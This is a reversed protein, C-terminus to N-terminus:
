YLKIVNEKAAKKINEKVLPIRKKYNEITDIRSDASIYESMLVASYGIGSGVELIRKPKKITLMVRLFSEMEKRIIPVHTAIAYEEIEECIKSNSKELSCIYDVIRENVIM